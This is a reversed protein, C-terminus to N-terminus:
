CAIHGLAGLRGTAPDSRLRFAEVLCSGTEVEVEKLRRVRTCHMESTWKAVRRFNRRVSKALLPSMSAILSFTLENM